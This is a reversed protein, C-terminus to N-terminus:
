DTLSWLRIVQDGKAYLQRENAVLVPQRSYPMPIKCKLKREQIDVVIISKTGAAVFALGKETM